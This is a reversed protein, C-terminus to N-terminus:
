GYAAELEQATAPTHTFHGQTDTMESVQFAIWEGHGIQKMVAAIVRSAKAKVCADRMALVEAKVNGQVYCPLGVVCRMDLHRARDGPQVQLQANRNDFEHWDGALPLQDGTDTNIWVMSPVYRRKRMAILEETGRM